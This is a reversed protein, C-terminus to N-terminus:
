LNKFQIKTIKLGFLHYTETIKLGFLPYSETVKLGFLPHTVTIRLGFQVLRTGGEFLLCYFMIISKYKEFYVDLIKSELNM